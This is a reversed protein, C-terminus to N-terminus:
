ASPTLSEMKLGHIYRKVDPPLDQSSPKEAGDVALFNRQSKRTRLRKIFNANFTARRVLSFFSSVDLAVAPLTHLQIKTSRGEIMATPALAIITLHNKLKRLQTNAWRLQVAHMPEQVQLALKLHM